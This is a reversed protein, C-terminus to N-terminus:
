NKIKKRGEYIGELNRTRYVLYIFGGMLFWWRRSQWNTSTMSILPLLLLMYNIITTRPTHYILKLLYFFYYIVIGLGIIGTTMLLDIYFNHAGMAAGLYPVIAKQFTGWGCGFFIWNINEGMAEFAAKWIIQRSALDGEEINASIGTIREFTAEPVNNLLEAGFYLIFPIILLFYTRKKVQWLSLVFSIIAVLYLITGMRSGNAIIALASYLSFLVSPIRFRTKDILYCLILAYCLVFSNENPNGFLSVRYLAGTEDANIQFDTTSKYAIYIAGIIWGLMAATLKNSTNLVNVMIVVIISYQILYLVRIYAMGMNASWLATFAAWVTFAFLISVFKPRNKISLDKSFISSIFMAVFLIRGYTMGSGESTEIADLPTFALVLITLILTIWKPPKM